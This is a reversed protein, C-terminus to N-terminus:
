WWKVVAMLVSFMRSTNRSTLSVMRCSLRLCSISCHAPCVLLFLVPLVLLSPHRCVPLPVQGGGGGWGTLSGGQSHGAGGGRFKSKTNFGGSSGGNGGRKSEAKNLKNVTVEFPQWRSPVGVVMHGEFWQVHGRVGLGAWVRFQNSRWSIKITNRGGHTARIRVSDKERHQESWQLWPQPPTRM